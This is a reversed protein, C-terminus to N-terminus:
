SDLLVRYATPDLVPRSFRDADEALAAILRTVDHRDGTVEAADLSLGEYLIRAWTSSDAHVEATATSVDESWDIRLRDDWRVLYRRRADHASREDHLVLSLVVPPVLPRRPAMTLMSQVTADPTLGCGDITRTPSAQAWRGLVAFVPELARAWDTLEYVTVAAPAPLQRRQVLGHGELERLRATLVAPTVGRVSSAIETFRKPGLMLERLVPYTWRDGILEMAHATACADGHDTYRQRIPM